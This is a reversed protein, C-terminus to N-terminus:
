CAASLGAVGLILTYEYGHNQVFFGQKLHASVGAVVMVGFVSAAAGMTFLRNM